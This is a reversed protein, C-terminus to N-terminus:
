ALIPVWKDLLYATLLDHNDWNPVIQKCLKYHVQKENKFRTAIVGNRLEGKLLALYAAFENTELLLWNREDLEPYEFNSQKLRINRVKPEYKSYLLAVAGTEKSLIWKACNSGFLNPDLAQCMNCYIGADTPEWFPVPYAFKGIDSLILNLTSSLKFNHRRCWAKLLNYITFKDQLTDYSKLYVGRVDIGNLFDGGCSERFKGATFSKEKNVEFGFAELSRSVLDSAEHLCIIDDGFVGFNGVEWFSPKIFPLKLVSYVARVLVAFILTELPFTFGNGMSSIMHLEMWRDVGDVRTKTHKCRFNCLMNYVERPLLEKCFVLSITDSASTLDLTDFRGDISGQRALVQNREPQLLGKYFTGGGNQNKDFHEPSSIYSIGFSDRLIDILIQAVGKQYLMNLSPESCITRDIQNNKPVTSLSSGQLVDICGFQNERFIEADRWLPRVNVYSKYLAVLLQSSSTIKGYGVKHYFSFEDVGASKGPGVDLSQEIATLSLKTFGNTYFIENMIRRMEGFVLKVDEQARFGTIDVQRCKENAAKFKELALQDANEVRNTILKKVFSSILANASFFQTGYVDDQSSDKISSLEESLELILSEYIESSTNM